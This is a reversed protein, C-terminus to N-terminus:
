EGSLPMQDNAYEVGELEQELRTRERYLRQSPKYGYTNASRGYKRRAERHAKEQAQIRSKVSELLGLIEQRKDSYNM